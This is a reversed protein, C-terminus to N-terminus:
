YSMVGKFHTYDYQELDIPFSHIREGNQSIEPNPFNKNGRM